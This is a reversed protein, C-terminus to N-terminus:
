RRLRHSFACFRRQFYELLVDPVDPPRNHGSALREFVIRILRRDHDPSM